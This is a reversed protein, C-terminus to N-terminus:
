KIIAFKKSISVGDARLTYIYVGSALNKASFTVLYKGAKQNGDQLTGVLQGLTNYIKLSVHGSVPISYKISTSPNFPNPYNQELLYNGPLIGPIVEINDIIGDLLDNIKEWEQDRQAEWAAMQDPFWNLDGLPFGGLAATQYMTNTYALNEPLPWTQNTGASMEFGWDIDSGSAWRNNIFTKISDSNTAPVIFDPDESYVTATDINMTPFVKNGDGDVSDIISYAQESIMPAPNYIEKQKLQQIRGLAYPCEMYWDLLWDQLMYCNYGVYLRRDENTFPVEFGFDQVLEIESILGGTPPPDCEGDLFDQYSQSTECVDLARYGFMFPNVFISNTISCNNLWGMYEERGTQYVWEVGNLLTCHNLQIMDGYENGEQMVVRSINTFTCNEFLLSDYHFGTSLYPFSVARAYYQFHDDSFNRFFCNKFIGIFHDAKVSIAGSGESGIGAFDFICGEFTGRDLSDVETTDLFTISTSRQVGLNDAFRVWVNKMAVDGYTQIIYDDLDTPAEQNWLIQPPATDYATGPKDAVIELNEGVDMIIPRSLHYQEYITLKFVTNNIDGNTQIYEISDNLTGVTQGSEFFGQVYVTDKQAFLTGSMCIILAFSLILYKM